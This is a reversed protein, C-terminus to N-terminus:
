LYRDQGHKRGGVESKRSVRPRYPALLDREQGHKRGGVESKRSVRPRQLAQLDREQHVEHRARAYGTPVLLLYSTALIVVLHSCARAYGTHPYRPSLALASAPPRMGILLYARAHGHMGMCAWAHGHMGICREHRYALRHMGVHICAWADRERERRLLSPARSIAEETTM